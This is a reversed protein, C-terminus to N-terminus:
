HSVHSWLAMTPLENSTSGLWQHMEVSIRLGTSRGGTDFKASATLAPAVGHNEHVLMVDLNLSLAIETECSISVTLLSTELRVM